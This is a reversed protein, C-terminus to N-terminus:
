KEELQASVKQFSANAQTGAAGIAAPVAGVLVMAGDIGEIGVHTLLRKRFQQVETEEALKKGYRYFALEVLPDMAAELDNQSAILKKLSETEMAAIMGRLEDLQTNALKSVQKADKVTAFEIVSDMAIGGILDFSIAAFNMKGVVKFEPPLFQTMEEPIKTGDVGLIIQGYESEIMADDLPYYEDSDRQDIFWQVDDRSGIALTNENHHFIAKNKTENVLFQRDDVVTQTWEADLTGAIQQVNVPSQFAMLVLVPPPGGQSAAMASEFSPVVLSVDMMETLRLGTNNEFVQDIETKVGTIIDRPITLSPADAFDVLDVHAFAFASSPISLWSSEYEDEQARLNTSFLTAIAVAIALSRISLNTM